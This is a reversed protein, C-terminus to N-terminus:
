AKRRRSLGLGALGLGLLALSTPEPVTSPASTSLTMNLDWHGSEGTHTSNGGFTQYADLWASAGFAGTKDNAGYGLQMVPMNGSPDDSGDNPQGILLIDFVEDFVNDNDNDFSITGTATTFYEWTAPDGKGGNKNPDYAGTGTYLDDFLISIYATDGTGNKATAALEATGADLDVVLESGTQFNYFQQCNSNNRKNTWLGHEAATGGTYCDVQNTSSVNYTVPAANAVSAVTIATIALGAQIFNKM